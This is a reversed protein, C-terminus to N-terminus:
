HVDNVSKTRPEVGSLHWLKLYKYYAGEANSVALALGQPGDLFGRKFIYTKVFAAVAHLLAQAPSSKRGLKAQQTAWLTSYNNVKGLVQEFDTFSYHLLTGELTNAPSPKFEPLPAGLAPEYSRAPSPSDSKVTFAQDFSQTPILREHVLDPTFSAAGRRFLRLITDGQWGSYKILRGCYWSQRHIFYHTQSSNLKVVRAVASALEPSLREDADISLVWDCQALALARNKQVGFGAWEESEKVKAGLSSAIHVTQDSSQSDLVIIEDAISAVSQICEAIRLAENKTIIIVSLSSM